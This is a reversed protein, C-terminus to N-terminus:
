IIKHQWPQYLSKKLKYYEGSEEDRIKKGGFCLLVKMERAEGECSLHSFYESSGISLTNTCLNM